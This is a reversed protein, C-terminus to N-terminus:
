IRKGGAAFSSILVGIVVGLFVITGVLGVLVVYGAFQTVMNNSANAAASNATLVQGNTGVPIRAGTTTYGYLDGKTTLPSTGSPSAIWQLGTATAPNVSLIQGTTGASLIAAVDNASAVIIDGKANLISQPIGEADTLVNAVEVWTGVTM